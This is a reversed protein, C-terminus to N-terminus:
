GPGAAEMAGRTYTMAPLGVQRRLMAIQGLHYSDHQLLFGLAGGLTGDSGPFRQEVPTALRGPDLGGLATSLHRGIAVWATRLEPLPPLDRIEAISRAEALSRAVPNPLPAGLLAAAFHRTDVLHAVLFAITNGGPTTARGAQEPTM